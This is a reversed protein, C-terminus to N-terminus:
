KVLIIKQSRTFHIGPSSIPRAELLIFYVGSALNDANFPVGYTGATKITNALVAVQRGSLDFVRLRLRMREPLDFTIIAANNFPNPYPRLSITQPMYPESGSILSVGNTRVDLFPDGLLMENLQEKLNVWDGANEYLYQMRRLHAKGLYDGDNKMFDIMKEFHGSHGRNFPAGAAALFNSNGYIYNVLVNELPYTSTEVNSPSGPQKFGAVSCGFGFLIMGGNQLNYAQESTLLLGQEWAHVNVLVFEYNNAEMHSTFISDEQWGEGMWYRSTYDAWFEDFNAYSELAVRQYCECPTRGSEICTTDYSPNMAYFDVNQVDDYLEWFNYDGGFMDNSVMYMGVQPEYEQNYFKLIKEFYPRLQDAFDFYTNDEQAGVPIYSTWIDPSTPFNEIEDFDHEPVAYGDEYIVQCYGSSGDECYPDIAGNQYCRDLSLDGDEFYAPYLRVQLIDARAKYFSPLKINGIILIGELDPYRALYEDILSRIQTYGYDDLQKDHDLKISFNRRQSAKQIYNDIEDQLLLYLRQDVFALALTDTSAAIVHLGPLFAILATTFLILKKLSPM